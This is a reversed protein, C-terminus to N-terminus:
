SMRVLNVSSSLRFPFKSLGGGELLRRLTMHGRVHSRSPTAANPDISYAVTGFM